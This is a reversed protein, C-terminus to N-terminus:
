QVDSGGNPDDLVGADAEVDRFQVSDAPEPAEAPVFEDLLAEASTAQGARIRDLVDSDAVAELIGRHVKEGAPVREALLVRLEGLLTVYAAWEEGYVDRLDARIRKALVPAAGSTSIAIQLPGRRMVTPISVNSMDPAGAVSVLCGHEEADAYVARRVEDDEHVCLVVSAGMLDGRTFPRREITLLGNSEAEVLALPPDETIVAVDAGCRLLSRAKREAVSGEGVVVALRGRLDLFAPYYNLAGPESV